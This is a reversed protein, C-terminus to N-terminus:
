GQRYTSRKSILAGRKVVQEVLNVGFHYPIFRYNPVDLTIIDAQKGVEITGVKEGRGVAYASNVTAATIAEEPTMRLKLCALAIVFQMSETMCAPSLDTSLAVPLGSEIMRRANAYTEYGLTFDFAPM